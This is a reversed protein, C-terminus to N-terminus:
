DKVFDQKILEYAGLPFYKHNACAFLEPSYYINECQTDYFILEPHCHISEALIRPNLKRENYLCIAITKSGPFFSGLKSEYEMIRNAGKIESSAFSAEGTIRLGAYGSDIANKEADKLSTISRDPDFFGGKLYTDACKLIALQGSKLPTGIPINRKKFEDIIKQKPIEDIICICKQNSNLGNILFPMIISFLQKENKYIFSFHDGFKPEPKDINGVNLLYAIILTTRIYIKKQEKDQHKHWTENL